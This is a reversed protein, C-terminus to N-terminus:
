WELDKEEAKEKDKLIAQNYYSEFKNSFVTIPRNYQKMKKNSNWEENIYKIVKKFDELEYGEKIRAKLLRITIKSNKMYRTGNILNFYKIIERVM